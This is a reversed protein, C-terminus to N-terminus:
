LNKSCYLSANALNNDQIFKIPQSGTYPARGILQDGSRYVKMRTGDQIRVQNGDFKIRDLVNSEGWTYCQAGTGDPNIALTM